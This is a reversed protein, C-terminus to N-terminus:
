ICVMDFLEKKMFPKLIILIKEFIYTAHLVHVAKLQTPLGEQVYSLFKKITGLKLRTLHM